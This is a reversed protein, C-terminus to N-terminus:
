PVPERQLLLREGQLTVEQQLVLGDLLRVWTRARTDDGRYDIVLCPVARGHWDLPETGRLVEADLFRVDTTPRRVAAALPDILPMRWRQGPRLGTVRNLPHLPNLVSGRASVPVPDLEKDYLVNGPPSEIRVSPLFHQERVEGQVRGHVEVGALLAHADVAVARLQGERTIRYQSQVTQIHVPLLGGRPAPKLEFRCHLEFTDDPEHFRVETRAYGFEQDDRFVTWRIPAAQARRAEDVLDITYPPPQGPRLRPWLDRQFLWGTTALWFTVIGLTV